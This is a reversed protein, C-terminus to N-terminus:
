KKTCKPDKKKEITDIANDRQKIQFVVVFNQYVNATTEKEKKKKM